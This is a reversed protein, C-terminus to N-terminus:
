LGFFAKVLALISIITSGGSALGSFMKFQTVGDTASRLRNEHDNRSDELSILRLDALEKYHGLEAKLANVQATQNDVLHRLQEAILALNEDAVFIL